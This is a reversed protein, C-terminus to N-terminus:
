FCGKARLEKMLGEERRKMERAQRGGKVHDHGILHLIGHCLLRGVEEDFSVNFGEAQAAAKEASIVIDGLLCPDDMPFSLVDTPRDINRYRKNLDQIGPNDTLLISLERDKYGLGKLATEAM